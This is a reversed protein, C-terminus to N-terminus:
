QRQRKPTVSSFKSNLNNIRPSCVQDIRGMCRNEDLIDKLGPEELCNEFFRFNKKGM